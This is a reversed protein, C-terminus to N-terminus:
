PKGFDKPFSTPHISHYLHTDIELIHIYIWRALDNHVQLAFETMNGAGYFEQEYHELRQIFFTHGRKNGGAAPCQYKEMCDEECAFHWGAYYKLALLIKSVNDKDAGSEIINALDNFIGILVKHQNDLNDDGTSLAEDWAIKNPRM